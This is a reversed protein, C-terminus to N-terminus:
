TSSTSAPRSPWSPPGWYREVLEDLTTTACSRGPRDCRHPTSSGPARLGHTARATARLTPLVTRLATLQIRDGARTSCPQASRRPDDVTTDDVVLKNPNARGDPRVATAEGLRARVRRRRLAVLAPARPRDVRGDHDADWGEMPLVAMRNPSVLAGASGDTITLPRALAGGAGGGPRGPHARRDGGPPRAPARRHRAAQGPHVERWSASASPSTPSCRGTATPADRRVRPTRDSAAWGRLELFMAADHRYAPVPPRFAFHGLYQLLDNLEFFSAEGAAWRRDREAFLDPAFTSLGLLYDSGYMVMDIALDNGTLVM